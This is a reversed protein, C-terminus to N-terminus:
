KNEALLTEQLCACITGDLKMTGLIGLMAMRSVGQEMSRYLREKDEYLMEAQYLRRFFEAQWRYKAQQLSSAFSIELKRDTPLEPLLM